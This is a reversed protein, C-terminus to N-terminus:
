RTRTNNFSSRLELQVYAVVSTQVVYRVGMEIMVLGRRNEEQLSNWDYGMHM